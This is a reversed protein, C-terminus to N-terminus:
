EVKKLVVDGDPGKATLTDNAIAGSWDQGTITCFQAGKEFTKGIDEVAPVGSVIGSVPARLTRADKAAAQWKKREDAAVKCANIAEELAKELKKRQEPNVEKVLREALFQRQEEADKVDREAKSLRLDLEVNAFEAIVDDKNVADGNRVNLKTV